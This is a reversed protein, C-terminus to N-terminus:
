APTHEWVRSRQGNSDGRILPSLNHNINKLKKHTKEEKREFVFITLM